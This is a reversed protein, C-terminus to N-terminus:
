QLEVVGWDCVFPTPTPGPEEGGQPAGPGFSTGVLFDINSWDDYDTLLDNTTPKKDMNRQSPTTDIM